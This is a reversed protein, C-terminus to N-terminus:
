EVNSIRIDLFLEGQLSNRRILKNNKYFVSTNRDSVNSRRVSTLFIFYFLIFFTMAKDDKTMRM